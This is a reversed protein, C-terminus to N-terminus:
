FSADFTIQLPFWINLYFKWWLSLFTFASTFSHCLSVHLELLSTTNVLFFSCSFYNGTLWNSRDMSQFLCSRCFSHGCPTTIPEYLLKLCLTCNFDDTREAKEHSRKGMLFVQMKELNQLSAHLSNSVNGSVVHM